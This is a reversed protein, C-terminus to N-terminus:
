SKEEASLPADTTSQEPLVLPASEAREFAVALSEPVAARKSATGFSADFHKRWEVGWVERATTEDVAWLAGDKIQNRHEVRNSVSINEGTPMWAWGSPAADNPAYRHGIVRKHGQDAADFDSPMGSRARVHLKSAPM